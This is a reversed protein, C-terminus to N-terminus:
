CRNIPEVENDDLSIHRAKPILLEKELLPEENSYDGTNIV